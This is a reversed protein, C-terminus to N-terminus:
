GPPPSPIGRSATPLRGPGNSRVTRSGAIYHRRGDDSLLRIDGHFDVYIPTRGESDEFQPDDRWGSGVLLLRGSLTVVYHDDCPQGFSDTRFLRSGPPHDAPLAADWRIEDMMGV